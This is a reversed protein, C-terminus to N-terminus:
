KEFDNKQFNQWKKQAYKQIKPYIRHITLTPYLAKQSIKKFM